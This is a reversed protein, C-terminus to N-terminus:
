SLQMYMRPMPTSSYPTAKYSVKTTANTNGDTPHLRTLAMLRVCIYPHITTNTNGDITHLRTPAMLQVYISPSPYVTTNAGYRTQIGLKGPCVRKVLDDIFLVGIVLMWIWNFARLLGCGKLSAVSVVRCRHQADADM